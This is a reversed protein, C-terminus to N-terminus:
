KKLLDPMGNEMADQMLQDALVTADFGEVSSTFTRIDINDIAADLPNLVSDNGDVTDNVNGNINENEDGDIISQAESDPIYSSSLPHPKPPLSDGGGESPAISQIATIPESVDRSAPPVTAARSGSEEQDKDEDEDEDQMTPEDPLPALPEDAGADEDDSFQQKKNTRVWRLIKLSSGPAAHEPVVWVKEWCPVPQMLQRRASESTAAGVFRGSKLRTTM